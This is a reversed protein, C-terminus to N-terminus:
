GKPVSSKDNWESVQVKWDGSSITEWLKQCMIGSDSFSYNDKTSLVMVLLVYHAMVKLIFLIIMYDM